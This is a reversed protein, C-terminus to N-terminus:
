MQLGNKSDICAQGSSAKSITAFLNKSSTSNSSLTLVSVTVIHLCKWSLTLFIDILYLSGQRSITKLCSLHIVSQLICKVVVQSVPCQLPARIIRVFIRSFGAHILCFTRIIWMDFDISYTPFCVIRHIVITHILCFTHIIWPDCQRPEVTYYRIVSLQDQIVGLLLTKSLCSLKIM